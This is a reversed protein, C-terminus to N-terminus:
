QPRSDRDDSLSSESTFGLGKEVIGHRSRFDFYSVITCQENYGWQDTGTEKATARNCAVLFQSTAFDERGNSRATRSDVYGVYDATQRGTM